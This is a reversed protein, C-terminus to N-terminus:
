PKPKPTLPKPNLCAFRLGQIRLKCPKVSARRGPGEKEEGLGCVRSVQQHKAPFVPIYDICLINGYEKSLRFGSGYVRFKSGQVRYQIAM